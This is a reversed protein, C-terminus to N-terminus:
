GGPPEDGLEHVWRIEARQAKTLLPVLDEAASRKHAIAGALKAGEFICAEFPSRRLDAGTLDADRFICQRFDTARLDCGRLDAGSFDCEIFENWCVRSDSLDTASFNVKEFSSRGFFMRPLTLHSLDSGQWGTRFFIINVPSDDGINPMRSPLHPAGDATRPLAAGKAELFRWTEELSKRL